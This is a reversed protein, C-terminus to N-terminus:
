LQACEQGVLHRLPASQRVTTEMVIVQAANAIVHPVTLMVTTNTVEDQRFEGTDFVCSFAHFAPLIHM